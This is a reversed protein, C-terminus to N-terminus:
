PITPPVADPAPEAATAGLTPDATTAAPPTADGTTADAPM